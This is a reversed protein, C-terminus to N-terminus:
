WRFWNGQSDMMIRHGCYRCVPEGKEDTKDPDPMHWEMIDHYFWKGFGTNLYILGFIINCSILILAVTCVIMM